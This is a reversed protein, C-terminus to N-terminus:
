CACCGILTLFVTWPPQIAQKTRAAVESLTLATTLSKCIWINWIVAKEWGSYSAWSSRDNGWLFLEHWRPAAESVAQSILCKPTQIFYLKILCFCTNTNAKEQAAFCVDLCLFHECWFMLMVFCRYLGHNALLYIVAWNETKFTYENIIQLLKMIESFLLFLLSFILLSLEILLKPVWIFCYVVLGSSNPTQINSLNLREQLLVANVFNLVQQCPSLFCLFCVASFSLRLSM